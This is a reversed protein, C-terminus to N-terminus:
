EGDQVEPGITLSEGPALVRTITWALCPRDPLVGSRLSMIPYTSEDTRRYWSDVCADKACQFIAKRDMDAVTLPRPTEEAAATITIKRM